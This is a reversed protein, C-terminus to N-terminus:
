RMARSRPGPGSTAPRPRQRARRPPRPEWGAGGAASAVLMRRGRPWHMAASLDIEYEVGDFAFAYTGTAESGDIDDELIVQVRQAM